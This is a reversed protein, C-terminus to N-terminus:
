IQNNKYNFNLSTFLGLNLIKMIKIELCVKLSIEFLGSEMSLYKLLMKFKIKFRIKFNNQWNIRGESVSNNSKVLCRM